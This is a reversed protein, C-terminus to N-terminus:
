CPHKNKECYSCPNRKPLETKGPRTPNPKESNKKKNNFMNVKHSRTNLAKCDSSLNPYGSLELLRSRFNVYTRSDKSQLNDVIVDMSCPLSMLIHREKTEDSKLYDLLHRYTAQHNASRCCETTYTHQQEYSSIHDILVDIDQIKTTFFSQVTHHLTLSNRLDAHNEVAKWAYKATPADSAIYICSESLFSM